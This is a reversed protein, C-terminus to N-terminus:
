GITTAPGRGCVLFGFDIASKNFRTTARLGRQSAADLEKANEDRVADLAAEAPPITARANEIFDTLASEQGAPLPLQELEDIRNRTIETANEFIQAAAESDGDIGAKAAQTELPNRQEYLEQCIQDAREVYEARTLSEPVSSDDGADGDGGCGALPILALLILSSLRATATRPRM